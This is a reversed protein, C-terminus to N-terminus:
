FREIIFIGEGICERDYNMRRILTGLMGETEMVRWKPWLPIQRPCIPRSPTYEMIERGTERRRGLLARIKGSPM